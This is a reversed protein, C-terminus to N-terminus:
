EFDDISIKSCAQFNNLTYLLSVLVFGNVDKQHGQLQLINRM